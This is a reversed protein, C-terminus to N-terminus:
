MKTNVLVRNRGHCRVFLEGSGCPCKDMLDVYRHVQPQSYQGEIYGESTIAKNRKVLISISLLRQGIRQNYSHWFQEIRKNLEAQDNDLSEYQVDTTIKTWFMDIEDLMISQCITEIICRGKNKIFIDDNFTVSFLRTEGQYCEAVPVSVQHMYAQNALAKLGLSYAYNRIEHLHKLVEDSLGQLHTEENLVKKRYNYLKKRFSDISDDKQAIENRKSMKIEECHKQALLFYKVAKQPLLGHDEDTMSSQLANKEEDTLYECIEDESSCFIVSSGKDGQRGARGRLQNDVRISESLSTAIVALGGKANVGDQLKIDTGRGAVNSAITIANFQGAQSIVESEKDLSKANLLNHEIGHQDLLNSMHETDRITPCGVLIPRGSDKLRIIESIIAKEKQHMTQFCRIPLDERILPKNTAISEIQLHYMQQLIESAPMATGTMGSIKAYMKFYNKLSISACIVSTTSLELGEKVEVASHLYDNWRHGVKVRGTDQDIIMIQRNQVIYDKDKVLSLHAILLSQIGNRIITKYDNEAKDASSESSSDEYLQPYQCRQSLWHKGELTLTVSDKVDFYTSRNDIEILEKVIPALQKLYTALNSDITRSIIYPVSAEDVLISDAEDVLAFNFVRQVCDDKAQATNDYLYDFVFGSNTGFTVDAMYANRRKLTRNKYLEICDTTIGLFSYIPRTLQFDRKSLYDNTTMVHVGRGTLANLFVPMIATLTKGEGTAMEAIKGEHLVIGGQLQVDYPIMNWTTEEGGASWNNNYNAYQGEIYIFDPRESRFIEEHPAVAVRLHSSATFRRTTEKVLAFAEPLNEDLFSNVDSASQCEAKLYFARQRLEDDSLGALSAYIQNIRAIKLKYNEKM